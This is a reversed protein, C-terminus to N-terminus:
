ATSALHLRTIASVRRKSADSYSSVVSWPLMMRMFWAHADRATLLSYSPSLAFTVVTPELSTGPYECRVTLRPTRTAKQTAGFGEWSYIGM